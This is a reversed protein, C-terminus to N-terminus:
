LIYSSPLCTTKISNLFLKINKYISILLKLIFNIIMLCFLYYISVKYCKYLM